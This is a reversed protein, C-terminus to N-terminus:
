GKLRSNSPFTESAFACIPLKSEPLYTMWGPNEFSILTEMPNFKERIKLLELAKWAVSKLELMREIFEVIAALIIGSRPILMVFAALEVKPGTMLLRETFRSVERALGEGSPCDNSTGTM